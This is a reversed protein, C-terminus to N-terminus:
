DYESFSYSPVVDLSTASQSTNVLPVLQREPALLYTNFAGSRAVIEFSPLLDTIEAGYTSSLFIATRKSPDHAPTLPLPGPYSAPASAHVPNLLRVGVNTAGILLPVLVFATLYIAPRAAARLFLSAFKLM